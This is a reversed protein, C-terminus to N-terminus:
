IRLSLAVSWGVGGSGFVLGDGKRFNFIETYVGVFIVGQFDFMEFGGQIGFKEIEEPILVPNHGKTLGGEDGVAGVGSGLNRIEGTFETPGFM